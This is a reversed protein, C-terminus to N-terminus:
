RKGPAAAAPSKEVIIDVIRSLHKAGPVAKGSLWIEVLAKRVGLRSALAEASGVTDVAHRVCRAYSDQEM